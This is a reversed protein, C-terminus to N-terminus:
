KGVGEGGRPRPPFATGWRLETPAVGRQDAACWSFGLIVEFPHSAVALDRRVVRASEFKKVIRAVFFPGICERKGSTVASIVNRYDTRTTRPDEGTPENLVPSSRRAIRARLIGSPPDSRSYWCLFRCLLYSFLERPFRHNRGPLPATQASPCLIKNGWRILAWTRPVPPNQRLRRHSPSKPLRDGLERVPRPSSAFTGVATERFM